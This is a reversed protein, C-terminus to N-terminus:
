LEVVTDCFLSKSVSSKITVIDSRLSETEVLRALWVRGKSEGRAVRARSVVCRGM